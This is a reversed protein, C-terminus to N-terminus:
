RPFAMRRLLAQFRPDARIPDSLPDSGIGAIERAAYAKELYELAKDNKRLGEYVFVFDIPNVYREKSIRQLQSLVDEAERRRGAQAYIHGLLGLYDTNDALARGRSQVEAIAERYMGKQEYAAALRFRAGSFGSDLDLTRRMQQIADDFRRAYYFAVGLQANMSLSLPDLQLGREAERLAEDHRGMLSLYNSYWQHGTPYSPNLNTALRFEREAGAWDLDRDQKIAGLTAHPEALSNDLLLAKRAAEEAQPVARSPELVNNLRMVHYSDALGAYALAYKPDAQLARNYYEV